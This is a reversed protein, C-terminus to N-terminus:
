SNILAAMLEIPKFFDRNRRRDPTIKTGLLDHNLIETVQLEDWYEIATEYNRYELSEVHHNITGIIKKDNNSKALVVEALEKRFRIEQRENIKFDHDLQRILRAKFVQGFDKVDKKLVNIILISYCTKNNMLILCKKRGITFLHGNWDGLNSSQAPQVEATKGLFTQLKKSCYIIM